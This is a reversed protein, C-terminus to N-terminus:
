WGLELTISSRALRNGSHTFARTGCLSSIATTGFGLSKQLRYHMEDAETLPLAEHSAIEQLIQFVADRNLAPNEGKMLAVVGAVNPVAFSTGQVQVYTGLPDFVDELNPMRPM